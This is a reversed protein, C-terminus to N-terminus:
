AAVAELVVRPHKEAVALLVRAAGTPVRRGQEWSELTRRSVGLLTSFEDQTLKLKRRADAAREAHAVAQAHQWAAPNHATHKARGAADFTVETVRSPTERGSELADKERILAKLLTSNM